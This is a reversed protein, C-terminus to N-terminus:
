SAGWEEWDQNEDGPESKPAVKAESKDKAKAKAKGKPNAAAELKRKQAAEGPVLQLLIFFIPCRNHHTRGM